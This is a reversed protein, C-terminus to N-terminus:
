WWAVRVQGSLLVLALVVEDGACVSYAGAKGVLFAQWTAQM